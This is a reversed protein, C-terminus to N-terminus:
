RSYRQPATPREEFPDFLRTNRGLRNYDGMDARVEEAFSLLEAVVAPQEDAVDYRERYDTYLDYLLPKQVAIADEPDLHTSPTLPAVWEPDKPRPLHLKWRGKRVAQLHTWLFYAFEERPSTSSEGRIFASLDLGDIVRDSPLSAGAMTAFTTFIDQLAAMESSVRGPVIHGPAWIIAPVRVGGEWLSMKGSRFPGSSGGEARKVIWPGNDSTFVVYTNKHLGLRTVEDIVRGVHHDLEEIVDGYLGRRSMGSFEDSAALAVHPMNPCFYVFFPSDHQENIFQITEDAYRGTMTGLDPPQEIIQEDRLLVVDEPFDNSAPTGFHYDFGQELPMLEPRWRNNSHGALGWKGIMATKYGASKLVEALTIEQDHLVTHRSKTNGPEAIRIPYSGTMLAARAPGCFPEAYLSTLKLGEAAMADIRPTRINPSGYSGIDGYGLDDAL